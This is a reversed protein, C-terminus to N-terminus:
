TKKRGDMCHYRWSKNTRSEFRSFQCCPFEVLLWIQELLYLGPVRFVWKKFSTQHFVWKQHLSKSDDLQFLWLFASQKPTGPLYMKLVWGKQYRNDIWWIEPSPTTGWIEVEWVDVFNELQSGRSTKRFLFKNVGNSHDCLLQCNNHHTNTFTRMHISNRVM